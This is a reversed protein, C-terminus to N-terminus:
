SDFTAAVEAVEINLLIMLFVYFNYIQSTICKFFTHTKIGESIIMFQHLGFDYFTHFCSEFIVDFHLYHVYYM